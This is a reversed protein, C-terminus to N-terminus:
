AFLCRLCFLDSQALQIAGFPVAIQLAPPAYSLCVIILTKIVLSMKLLYNHEGVSVFCYKGGHGPLVQLSIITKRQTLFLHCSSM